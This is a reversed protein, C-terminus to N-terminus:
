TAEVVISDFYRDGMYVELRWMGKKNGEKDLVFKAGSQADAGVPNKSRSVDWEPYLTQTIGTEKHVGILKYTSALEEQKGWFYIIFHGGKSIDSNGQPVFGLRDKKGYMKVGGAEFTGSLEWEPLNDTTDQASCATLLFILGILLYKVM